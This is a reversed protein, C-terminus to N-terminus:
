RSASGNYLRLRAMRSFTRPGSCALTPWDSLLRARRVLRLPPVELGLGQVPTTEGDALLCEAGVV